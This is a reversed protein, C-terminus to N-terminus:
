GLTIVGKTRVGHDLFWQALKDAERKVDAFTWGRGEFWFAEAAPDNFDLMHYLTCYDGMMANGEAVRKQLQRAAQWASLDKVIHHKADLYMAGVIAAAAPLAYRSAIELVGDVM